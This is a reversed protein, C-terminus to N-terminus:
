CSNLVDAFFWMSCFITENLKIYACPAMVLSECLLTLINPRLKIRLILTRDSIGLEACAKARRAGATVAKDILLAANHRDPTSIM